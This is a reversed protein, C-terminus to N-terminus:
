YAYCPSTLCTPNITAVVNFNIAIYAYRFNMQYDVGKVEESWISLSDIDYSKVDYSLSDVGYITPIVAGSLLTIIEHALVDDSFATDTMKERPVVMVLRMPMTMTQWNVGGCAQFPKHRKTTAEGFSVNGAKRVYSNGNVDNNFVEQYNGGPIYQAPYTRDGNRILECYEFHTTVYGSSLILEKIDCAIDQIIM